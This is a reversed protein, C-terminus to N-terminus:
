SPPNVNHQKLLSYVTPRSVGLIKAAASLNGASLALASSLAKREAEDRAEQLTASAEPEDSGAPPPLGMHAATISQGEALIVARKIRNELERVNGAWPHTRLAALADPALQLRRRGHDASFKDILHRALVVCDDDRERLPPIDLALEGIRYFLDERFGGTRIRGELDQHTACVIRVDVPITERGGVREIVREQIFRLLKVQLSMPMDGIEDLFLTGKQALEIKGKVQRVAGTFAGREHGFLESELLNEPIAACNIAIFPGRRRSSLNHLARAFLEKGTGSEGLLLVSIDTPAVKEVTRCLALMADCSTVIGQFSPERSQQLRRNEAELDFVNFARRVILSLVQGDIPKQYFDYAGLAIARVAHAREENGTVVIVKTEPAFALIEALTRLGEVADDPAPPLGLDLTVVPPRLAKVQRLASERDSATHVECDEFSWKLGRLIAPDDDVLLLTRATASAPPASTPTM